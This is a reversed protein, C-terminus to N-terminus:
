PEFKLAPDPCMTKGEAHMKELEDMKEPNQIAILTALLDYTRLSQIYLGAIMEQMAEVAEREVSM